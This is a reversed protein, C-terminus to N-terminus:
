VTPAPNVTVPIVVSAGTENGYIILSTTVTAPVNKPTLTFDTGVATVSNANTTDGIFGPTTPANTAPLGTGVLIASTGDFLVVTYGFGPGNFGGSTTPRFPFANTAGATLVISTFGISIVPIQNTGRPLTVLKYRMNQTEDPSAELLPMTEIAAGYFNTGLPHATNWLSYDVEDDAM